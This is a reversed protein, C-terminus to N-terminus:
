SIIRSKPNGPIFPKSNQRRIRNWLQQESITIRMKLLDFNVPKILYDDAGAELAAQLDKTTDYATIVLIMSRDRGPLARIRRCFEFGNMGPLGLDLIILQYFTQRYAVLATEANECSTVECGFSRIQNAFLMRTEPNDEVILVKM